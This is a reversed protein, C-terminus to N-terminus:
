EPKEKGAQEEVARMAELATPRYEYEVADDKVAAEACWRTPGSYFIDESVISGGKRAETWRWGPLPEVAEIRDAADHLMRAQSGGLYDSAKAKRGYLARCLRETGDDDRVPDSREPEARPLPEVGLHRGLARYIHEADARDAILMPKGNRELWVGHRDQHTTWESM